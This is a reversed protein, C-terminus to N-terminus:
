ATLPQTHASEAASSRRAPLDFFTLAIGALTWVTLVLWPFTSDAEPFYSLNKLLTAAAGPPLWQGIEGWPAPLFEVPVAAASIPNAVLMMFAAGLGAGAVGLLGALGTITASIAAIALAIAGANVWYSGQLAGYLGQLIGALVLGAVPAYVLVAVVRRLGGPKVLLTIANGGIMGGIIMPFMAASLGAGRPDSAALPVVDTVEVTVAPITMPEAGQMPLQPTQGAIVAQIVAQMQTAFTEQLTALNEEITSHIQADIQQQQEHALGQLLQAVAPSAASATLVEPAEGQAAPLVIAGYVAREEIAAVAADRDDFESLAIAGESQEDIADGIQDSSGVIGIPLNQPDANVAPWSFALLVTGVILSIGVAIVPLRRWPTAEGEHSFSM